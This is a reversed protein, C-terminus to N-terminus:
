KKGRLIVIDFMGARIIAALPGALVCIFFMILANGLTINYGDKWDLYMLLAFGIAAWLIALYIM